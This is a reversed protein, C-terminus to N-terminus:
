HPLRQMVAQKLCQMQQDDQLPQNDRDTIFFIDEVEAGLTAIRAHQLRINCTM